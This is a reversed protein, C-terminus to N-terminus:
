VRETYEWDDAVLRVWVYDQAKVNYVEGHLIRKGLRIGSCRSVSPGINFRSCSVPQVAINVSALPGYRVFVRM